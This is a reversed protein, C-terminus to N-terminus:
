VGGMDEGSEAWTLSRAVRVCTTLQAQPWGKRVFAMMRCCCSRRGVAVGRGPLTLVNKLLLMYFPLWVNHGYRSSTRLGARGSDMTCAGGNGMSAAIFPNYDLRYGGVGEGWGMGKFLNHMLRKNLMKRVYRQRRRWRRRQWKAIPTVMRGQWNWLVSVGKWKAPSAVGRRIRLFECKWM